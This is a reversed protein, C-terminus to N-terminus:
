AAAKRRRRWVAFGIAAIGSAFLPLTAPLPTALPSFAFYEIDTVFDFTGSDSHSSDDIYNWDLTVANAAPAQTALLAASAIGLLLRRM